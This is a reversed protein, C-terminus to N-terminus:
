SLASLNNFKCSRVSHTDINLTSILEIIIIFSTKVPHWCRINWEQCVKCVETTASDSGIAVKSKCNVYFVDCSLYSAAQPLNSIRINDVVWSIHNISAYWLNVKYERYTTTSTRASENMHCVKDALDSGVVIDWINLNTSISYQWADELTQRYSRANLWICILSEAIQIIKHM